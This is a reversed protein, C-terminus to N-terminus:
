YIGLTNAVAAKQVKKEQANDFWDVWKGLEQRRYCVQGVFM